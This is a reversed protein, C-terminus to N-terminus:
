RKSRKSRANSRTNLITNLRATSRANAKATSRKSIATSRKSGATSRKSGANSRKSRFDPISRRNTFWYGYEDSYLDMSNYITNLKNKQIFAQKESESKPDPTSKDFMAIEPM